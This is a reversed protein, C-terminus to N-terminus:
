NGAGGVSQGLRLRASPPPPPPPPQGAAGGPTPLHTHAADFSAGHPPASPGGPAVRRPAAGAVNSYNVSDPGVGAFSYQILDRFRQDFYTARGAVAKGLVAYELGVEWSVSHEPKLDPNGQSKFGTAFNEYFSPEKFGTGVSAVARAGEAVRVSTGARYTAYTGFRQNDELRAGLTLGVPPEPASVVQLYVAGDHRPRAGDWTTGNMEEGEFAGGLTVVANAPPRLNVRADLGTRTIWDSSRFPFTTTDSAGNKDIAYVLNNRHWGLTVRGEVRGGGGPGGAAAGRPFIGGGGRWPM